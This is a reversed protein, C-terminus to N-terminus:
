NGDDDAENKTKVVKYTKPDLYVEVEGGDSKKIEVAYTGPNEVDEESKVVSGPHAKLAAAEAKQKAEGTLPKEKAEGAEGGEAEANGGGGGDSGAAGHTAKSGDAGSGGSDSGGCAVLGFLLVGTSLATLARTKVNM